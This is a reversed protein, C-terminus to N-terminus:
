LRSRQGWSGMTSRKTGRPGSTGTPMLIPESTKLIDREFRRVSPCVSPCVSFMIGGGAPTASPPM